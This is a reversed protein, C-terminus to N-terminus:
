PHQHMVPGYSPGYAPTPWQTGVPASRQNMGGLLEVLRDPYNEPFEWFVSQPTTKTLGRELPTRGLLFSGIDSSVWPDREFYSHGIFDKFQQEAISADVLEITTYQSFFSKEQDSLEDVARGLRSSDNLKEAAKLARDKPSAYVAVGRTMEYFRDKVANTFAMLDMDPAALVVRSVRYKDQVQAATLDFDLLRLERLANVVIPSGASHAIITISDIRCEKAINSILSRFQHTSFNANAKDPLYGLLKSESPWEFSMMAGRRGMYHYIEGALLTNDIYDTNYGHVFITATQSNTRNMQAKVARVWPNNYYRVESDKVRWADAPLPVPSLEIRDYSVKARKRKKETITEALLEEPSLGAGVQVFAVGLTPIDSRSDGFPNIPDSADEVDRGSVIFIPLKTDGSECCSNFNGGPQPIGLTLAIPTPMLERALKTRACGYTAAIVIALCCIFRTRRLPWDKWAM